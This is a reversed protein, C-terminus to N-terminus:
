RGSFLSLSKRKHAFSVRLQKRDFACLECRRLCLRLNRSKLLSPSRVARKQRCINWAAGAAGPATGPNLRLLSAGLGAARACAPQATAEASPPLHPLEESGPLGAEAQLGPRSAPGSPFGLEGRLWLPGNNRSSFLGPDGASLLSCPHCARSDHEARCSIAMPRKVETVLLGTAEPPHSHVGPRARSRGSAEPDQRGFFRSDRCDRSTGM